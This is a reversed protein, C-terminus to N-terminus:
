KGPTRTRRSVYGSEATLYNSSAITHHRKTCTSLALMQLGERGGTMQPFSCLTVTTILSEIANYSTSSLRSTQFRQSGAAGVNFHNLILLLRSASYLSAIEISHM